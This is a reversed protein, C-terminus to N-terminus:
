KRSLLESDNPIKSCPNKTQLTKQKRRTSFDPRAYPSPFPPSSLLYPGSPHTLTIAYALLETKLKEKNVLYEFPLMIFVANRKM